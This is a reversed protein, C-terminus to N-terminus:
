QKAEGQKTQITQKREYLELYLLFQGNQLMHELTVEVLDTVARHFSCTKICLKGTEFM